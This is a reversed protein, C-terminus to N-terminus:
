PTHDICSLQATVPIVSVFQKILRLTYLPMIQQFDRLFCMALAAFMATMMWKPTGCSINSFQIANELCASVQEAKRRLVAEQRSFKQEMKVM